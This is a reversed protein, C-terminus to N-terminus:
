IDLQGRQGAIFATLSNRRSGLSYGASMSQETFSRLFPVHLLDAELHSASAADRHKPVVAVLHRSHEMVREASVARLALVLAIGGLILCNLDCYRSM